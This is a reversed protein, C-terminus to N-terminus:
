LLEKFLDDADIQRDVFILVSGKENDMWDKLIEILRNM